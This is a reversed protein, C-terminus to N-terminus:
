DRHVNQSAFTLARGCLREFLSSCSDVCGCGQPWHPETMVTSGSTRLPLAYLRCIFIHLVYLSSPVYCRTSRGACTRSVARGFGLRCNPSGRCAAPRRKVKLASETPYGFLFLGGAWRARPVSDCLAVRTERQAGSSGVLNGCLTPDVLTPDVHHRLALPPPM